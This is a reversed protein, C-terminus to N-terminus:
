SSAASAAMEWVAEDERPNDVIRQLAKIADQWTESAEERELFAAFTHVM